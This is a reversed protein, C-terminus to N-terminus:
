WTLNDIVDRLNQASKQLLAQEKENLPAVIKGKIGERGVVTLTSLCVDEIGYEGHMMASVTLTTDMASFICKCIHCVSAAIAFFTAGKRQIIRGGSKRIYSEVEDYVLDPSLIEKEETLCASYKTIPINSINALSWPVFSSDGHEGFM